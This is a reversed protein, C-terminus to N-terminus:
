ERAGEEKEGGAKKEAAAKRAASARAARAPAQRAPAPPPAAAARAELFEKEFRAKLAEADERITEASAANVEAAGEVLQLRESLRVVMQRLATVERIQAAEADPAPKSQYAQPRVNYEQEKGSEDRGCLCEIPKIWRRGSTDISVVGHEGLKVCGILIWADGCCDCDPCTKWCACIDPRSGKERESEAEEEKGCEGKDEKEKRRCINPPLAGPPFAQILVHDRTRSCQHQGEGGGSGCCGCSGASPESATHRRIAICLEDPPPGCLCPDPTLDFRVEKCLEVPFGHCDVGTGRGIRVVFSGEKRDDCEDKRAGGEEALRDATLELGCVIGCGFYARILVQMLSLPYRTAASLDEATVIMGDTFHVGETSGPVSKRPLDITTM